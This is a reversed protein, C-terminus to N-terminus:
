RRWSTVETALTTRFPGARTGDGPGTPAAVAPAYRGIRKAIGRVETESLPPDCRRQNEVLLAAAIAEESAGRRRMAGALSALAANRQGQPIHGHEAPTTLPPPSSMVTTIARQYVTVLGHCPSLDEDPLWFIGKRPRVTLGEIEASSKHLV